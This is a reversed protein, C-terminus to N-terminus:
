IWDKHYNHQRSEYTIFLHLLLCGKRVKVFSLVFEMVSCVHLSKNAKNMKTCTGVRHCYNAKVHTVAHQKKRCMFISFWDSVSQICKSFASVYWSWICYQACGVAWVNTCCLYICTPIWDNHTYIKRSNEPWMSNEWGWYFTDGSARLM